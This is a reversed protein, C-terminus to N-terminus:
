KWAEPFRELHRLETGADRIAVFNKRLREKVAM